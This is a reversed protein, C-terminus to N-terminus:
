RIGTILICLELLVVGGVVAWVALRQVRLDRPTTPSIQFRLDVSGCGITAGDPISKAAAAVGNISVIRGEEARLSFRHDPSLEIRFHAEWIGPEALCLDAVSRGITFPFRSMRVLMGSKQGSVVVLEATM